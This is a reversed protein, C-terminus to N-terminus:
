SYFDLQIFKRNQKGSFSNTYVKLVGPQPINRQMLREESSLLDADMSSITERAADSIYLRGEFFAIGVPRAFM